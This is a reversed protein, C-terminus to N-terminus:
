IHFTSVYFVCAGGVDVINYSHRWERILSGDERLMRWNMTALACKTGIMQIDLNTYVGNKMGEDRYTKVVQAFFQSISKRDEFLHFSGDARISMCPAHYCDAIGDVDASDFAFTYKHLLSVIGDKM